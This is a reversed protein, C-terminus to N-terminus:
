GSLVFDSDTGLAAVLGKLQAYTSLLCEGFEVM